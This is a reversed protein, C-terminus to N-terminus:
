VGAAKPWATRRMEERKRQLLGPTRERVEDM